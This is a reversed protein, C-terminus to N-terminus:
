SLSADIEALEENMWDVLQTIVERAGARRHADELSEGRKIGEAPVQRDLLRILDYSRPPIREAEDNLPTNQSPM